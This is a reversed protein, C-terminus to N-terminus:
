VVDAWASFPLLSTAAIAAGSLILRKMLNPNLIIMQKNTTKSTNKHHQALDQRSM